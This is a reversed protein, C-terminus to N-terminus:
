HGLHHVQALAQGFSLGIQAGFYNLFYRYGPALITLLIRLLIPLLACGHCWHPLLRLVSCHPLTKRFDVLRFCKNGILLTFIIRIIKHLLFLSILTHILVPPLAKTWDKPSYQWFSVYPIQSGQSAM